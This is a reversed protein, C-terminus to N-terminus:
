GGISGCERQLREKMGKVKRNLIVDRKLKAEPLTQRIDARKERGKWKM